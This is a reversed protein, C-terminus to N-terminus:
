WGQMPISWPRKIVLFTMRTRWPTAEQARPRRRWAMWMTNLLASIVKANQVRTRTQLQRNIMVSTYGSYTACDCTGDPHTTALVRDVEDYVFGQSGAPSSGVFYPLSKSLTRGYTDYTTVTRIVQGDFGITETVLERGQADLYVTSPPSGSSEAKRIFVVEPFETGTYRRTIEATQAGHPDTTLFKTGFADYQFSTRLGNADTSELLLAREQYYVMSASHGLENETYVVFRGYADYNSYSTRSAVGSASTTTSIVNGFADRTRSTTVAKAHGPEVTESAVLGTASDYVFSTV